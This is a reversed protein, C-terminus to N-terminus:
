HRRSYIFGHRQDTQVSNENQPLAQARTDYDGPFSVNKEVQGFLRGIIPINAAIAPNAALVGFGLALVAAVSAVWRAWFHKKRMPDPLTSLTTELRQHVQEPVRVDRLIEWQEQHEKM